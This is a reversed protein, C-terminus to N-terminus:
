VFLSPLCAKQHRKTCQAKSFSMLVVNTCVSSHPLHRFLTCVCVCVAIFPCKEIFVFSRKSETGVGTGV